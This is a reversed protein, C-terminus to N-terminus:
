EEAALHALRELVNHEYNGDIVSVPKPPEAAQTELHSLSPADGLGTIPSTPDAGIGFEKALVKLDKVVAQRIDADYRQEDRIRGRLKEKALNELMNARTGGKKVIRGLLPDKDIDAKLESYAMERRGAKSREKNEVLLDAIEDESLGRQSLANYLKQLGKVEPPLEPAETRATRGTSRPKEEELTDEEEETAGQQLQSFRALEDYRAQGKVQMLDLVKEYAELDGGRAKQLIGAYRAEVDAAAQKIKEEAEKVMAAASEFKSEAGFGKEARSFLEEESLEVERDGARVIYKDGTANKRVPM